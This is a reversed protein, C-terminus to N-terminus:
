GHLVLALVTVAGAACLSAALLGRDLGEPLLLRAAVASVASAALLAGVGGAAGATAVLPVVLLAFAVTGWATATLGQATRMELAAQQAAVAGAPVLVTYALALALPLRAHAFGEGFALPVTLELTSVGALAVITTGALARWGLVRVRALAPGPAAGRVVLDPLQIAFVQLVTGGIATAAGIALAASATEAASGAVIAVALPTGRLRVIRLLVALATQLGFRFAHPPPAVRERMARLAPLAPGIGISASALATIPLSAVAGEVGALAYGAVAGAFLLAQRLPLRVSWATTRGFALALQFALGGIADIAIALVVLVLVAASAADPVLVAFALGAVVTAAVGLARVQVLRVAMGAAVAPRLPEPATPVFRM